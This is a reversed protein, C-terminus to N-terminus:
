VGGYAPERQRRGMKKAYLGHDVGEILGTDRGPAIFTNTM